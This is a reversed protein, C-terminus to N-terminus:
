FPHRLFQFIEFMGNPNPNPNHNPNPNLKPDPNPKFNPNPNPNPNRNGISLIQRWRNFVCALFLFLFITLKDKQDHVVMNWM